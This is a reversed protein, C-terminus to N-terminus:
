KYDMSQNNKFTIFIDSSKQCLFYLVFLCRNRITKCLIEKLDDNLKIIKHQHLTKQLEISSSIDGESKKGVIFVIHM